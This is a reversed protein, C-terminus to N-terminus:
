SKEALRRAVGSIFHGTRRDLSATALALPCIQGGGLKGGTLIPLGFFANNGDELDVTWQSGTHRRIPEGAYRAVRDLATSEVDRIADKNTDYRQMLWQELLDISEISQDLQRRVDPPFSDAFECLADDMCDLWAEFNKQSSKAVRVTL